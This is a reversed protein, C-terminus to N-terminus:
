FSDTVSAKLWDTNEQETIPVYLLLQTFKIEKSNCQMQLPLWERESAHLTGAGLIHCNCHIKTKNGETTYM